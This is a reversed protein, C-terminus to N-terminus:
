QPRRPGGKARAPSNLMSLGGQANNIEKVLPQKAAGKAKVRPTAKSTAKKAKSGTAEAVKVKPVAKRGSGAM